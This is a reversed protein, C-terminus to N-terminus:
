IQIAYDDSSYHDGSYDGNKRIFTWADKSQIGEFEMGVNNSLTNPTVLFYYKGNPYIAGISTSLVNGIITFQSSNRTLILADTDYNRMEIITDGNDFIDANFEMIANAPSQNIWYGTPILNVVEFSFISPEYTHVDSYDKFCEFSAPFINSTGFREESTLQPKNTIRIGDVFVVDSILMINAREFAFVNTYTTQYSYSQKYLARSSITNKTSIQYYESVETQNEVSDFWLNLRIQQYHEFKDYSIGNFYNFSKYTFLSTQEWQDCTCIFPNSYYRFESETHIIKLHLELHGYDKQLKFEFAIQNLGRIDSFETIAFTDTIDDIENDCKDVLKVIYDGALTIGFSTNTIQCYFEDPVLHVQNNYLINSVNPNGINKAKELSKELRLFSYDIM